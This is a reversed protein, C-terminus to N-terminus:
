PDTRVRLFFKALSLPSRTIRWPIANDVAGFAAAQGVVRVEVPILMVRLSSVVDRMSRSLRLERATLKVNFMCQPYRIVWRLM